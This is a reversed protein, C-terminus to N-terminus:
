RGAMRERFIKDSDSVTTSLLLDNLVWGYLPLGQKATRLLQNEMKKRQAMFPCNAEFYSKMRPIAQAILKCFWRVCSDKFM